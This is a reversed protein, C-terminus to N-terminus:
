NGNRLFFCCSTRGGKGEPHADGQQVTEGVEVGLDGAGAALGGDGVAVELGPVDEDLRVEGAGDRVKAQGDPVVPTDHPGPPLPPRPIPKKTNANENKKM